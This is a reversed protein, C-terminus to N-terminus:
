ASLLAADVDIKASAFLRSVPCLRSAEDVIAVFRKEDAGPVLGRVVLRSRDITPLGNVDSLSVTATVELREAELHHEALKITLAMSFCSSHAAALLEEPSTKGGPAKTRSAWTLALGDLASSSSGSLVGTGLDLSGRWTTKTTRDAISM